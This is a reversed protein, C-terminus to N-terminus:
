NSKNNKSHNVITTSTTITMTAISMSKLITTITNYKDLIHLLKLADM